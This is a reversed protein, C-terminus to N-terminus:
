WCGYKNNVDHVAFNDFANGAAAVEEALAAIRDRHQKLEGLRAPTSAEFKAIM